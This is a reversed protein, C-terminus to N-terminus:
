AGTSERTILWRNGSKVLDLTKRSTVNLNDSTYAQRFRANARDGNVTVVLDSIGVDIRSRPMIRARRDAEWDSRSQGAPPKF